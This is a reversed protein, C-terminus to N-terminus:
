LSSSEERLVNREAVSFIVITAHVVTSELWATGGSTAIYDESIRSVKRTEAQAGLFDSNIASPVPTERREKECVCRFYEDRSVRRSFHDLIM